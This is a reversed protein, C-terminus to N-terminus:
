VATVHIKAPQGPEAQDFGSSTAPPPMVPKPHEEPDYIKVDIAYGLGWVMDAVTQITMNQGGTLRRHVVSRGVGLKKALSSQNIRDIHFRRYYADRLQGEIQGVLRLYTARRASVKTLFSTL